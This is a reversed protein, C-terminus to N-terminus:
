SENLFQLKANVPQASLHAGSQRRPAPAYKDVPIDELEIKLRQMTIGFQGACSRLRKLAEPQITEDSILVHEIKFKKILQPLKWHGGFVRYGNVWKGELHPADDLFGVPTYEGQHHHLINQLTMIGKEDAGYILLPKGGKHERRFLFNLIHFSSRSGAVFTLLLYFDTVLIPATV